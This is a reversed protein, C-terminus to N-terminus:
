KEFFLYPADQAIQNYARNIFRNVREVTTTATDPQWDVQDFIAQRIDSLNMPHETHVFCGM